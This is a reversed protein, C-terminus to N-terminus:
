EASPMPYQTNEDLNELSSPQDGGGDDGGEDPVREEASADGNEEGSGWDIPYKTVRPKDALIQRKVKTMDLPTPPGVEPDYEDM